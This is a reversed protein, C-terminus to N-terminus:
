RLQRAASAAYQGGTWLTMAAAIWLLVDGVPTLVLRQPAAAALLEVSLAVLQVTTKWKALYTVPFSVGRGAGAERLGSVFMERFLILFGPAAVGFRPALWTLGLIVSLVAIKDAIPDLIVGWISTANLKRALWGDFYDTVAGVVFAVFAILLLGSWRAPDRPPAGACVALAGFCLVALGIRSTTLINPASRAFSM